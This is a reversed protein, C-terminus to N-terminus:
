DCPKGLKDFADSEFPPFYGGDLSLGLYAAAETLADFYESSM